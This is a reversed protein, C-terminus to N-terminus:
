SPKQLLKAALKRLAPSSGSQAFWKIYHIDKQAVEELTLGKYRGNKLVNTNNSKDPLLNDGYCQKQQMLVDLAAQADALANHANDIKRNCYFEVAKTLTHPEM